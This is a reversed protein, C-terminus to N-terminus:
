ETRSLAFRSKSIYYPYSNEFAAYGSDILQKNHILMIDNPPITTGQTTDTFLTFYSKSQGNINGNYLIAMNGGGINISTTYDIGPTDIIINSSVIEGENTYRLIFAPITNTTLQLVVKSSSIGTMFDKSYDIITVDSNNFSLSSGLLYIGFKDSYVTTFISQMTNSPNNYRKAFQLIGDHNYKIFFGITDSAPSTDILLSSLEPPSIIAGNYTGVLYVGYNNVALNYLENVNGPFGIINKSWLGIGEMSYKRLFMYKTGANIGTFQADNTTYNKGIIYIYNNYLKIHIIYVSDVTSNNIITNYNSLSSGLSNFGLVAGSTYLSGLASLSFLISDTLGITNCINVIANSNREVSIFIGHHNLDISIVSANNNTSTIKRVFLLNGDLDYKVLFGSTYTPSATLKLNNDNIVTSNIYKGIIYIGSYENYTNTYINYNNYICLEQLILVDAVFKKVWIIKGVIDTKMLFGNKKGTTFTLSPHINSLDQNYYNLIYIYDGDIKVINSRADYVSGLDNGFEFTFKKNLASSATAM